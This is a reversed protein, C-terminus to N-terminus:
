EDAPEEPDEDGPKVEDGTVTWSCYAGDAHPDPAHRIRDDAQTHLCVPCPLLGKGRRIIEDRDEPVDALSDISLQDRDTRERYVARAIDRAHEAMDDNPIVELHTVVLRATQKDGTGETRESVTLEVIAVHTSGLTHYMTAALDDPVGREQDLKGAALKITTTSM